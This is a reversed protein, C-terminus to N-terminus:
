IPRYLGTPVVLSGVEPQRNLIKVRYMANDAKKLLDEVTEGNDPYISVGISLKLVVEEGAIIMPTAVSECIKDAVAFAHGPENIESLLVVFEDGGY